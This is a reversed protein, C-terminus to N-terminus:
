VNKLHLKQMQLVAKSYKKRNQKDIAKLEKTWALTSIFRRGNIDNDSLLEWNLAFGHEELLNKLENPTDCICVPCKEFHTKTPLSNSTFLMMQIFAMDLIFKVDEINKEECVEFVNCLKFTVGDVDGLKEIIEEPFGFANFILTLKSNKGNWSSFKAANDMQKDMAFTTKEEVDILNRVLPLKINTTLEKLYQLKIQNKKKELQIEQLREELKIKNLLDQEEQEFLRSQNNCKQINEHVNEVLNKISEWVPADSFGIPINGKVMLQEVESDDLNEDIECNLLKKFNESLNLEEESQQHIQHIFDM